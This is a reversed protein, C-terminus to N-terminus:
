HRQQARPSRAIAPPVFVMASGALVRALAPTSVTSLTRSFSLGAEAAPTEAPAPPLPNGPLGPLSPTGPWGALADVTGCARVIWEDWQAAAEARARQAAAEREAEYAAYKAKGVRRAGGGAAEAWSEDFTDKAAEAMADVLTARDCPLLGDEASAGPFEEGAIRALLEDFRAADPGAADEDVLRDLRAIHALLLRTDYRRRTGVLEGRYWIPEEVGDIARDALVQVSSERALALAAAWGRAFEADRRRLRYASETSLGVRACAARVNGKSALHDLFRAKLAPTWGRALAPIAAASAEAAGETVIPQHLM